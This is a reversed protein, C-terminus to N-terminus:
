NHLINHLTMLKSFDVYCKKTFIFSIVFLYTFLFLLGFSITFKPQYYKLSLIYSKSLHKKKKKRQFHLAELVSNHATYLEFKYKKVNINTELCALFQM